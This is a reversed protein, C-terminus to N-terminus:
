LATDFRREVYLIRVCLSRGWTACYKRTHTADLAIPQVTARLHMKQSPRATRALVYEGIPEVTNKILDFPLDWIALGGLPAAAGLITTDGESIGESRTPRGPRSGPVKPNFTRQEEPHALPGPVALNGTLCPM